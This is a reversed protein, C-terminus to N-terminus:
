EYHELAWDCVQGTGVAVLGLGPTTGAIPTEVGSDLSISAGAGIAGPVEIRYGLDETITVDATHGAQVTCIAAPANLRKKSENQGAGATGGTYRVLRYACPLNTTNFATIRTLIGSVTSSGSISIAPRLATGAITATMGTVYEAM